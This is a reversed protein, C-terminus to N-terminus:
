TYGIARPREGISTNTPASANAPSTSFGSAAGQMASTDHPM